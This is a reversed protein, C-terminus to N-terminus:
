FTKRLTAVIANETFDGTSGAGGTGGSENRKLFSYSLSGTLTDSFLYNLGITARYSQDSSGDGGSGYSESYSLTLFSSLLPSLQHGFTFFVSDEKRLGPGTVTGPNDDTITDQEIHAYSLNISDRTWTTGINALFRRTLTLNDTTPLGGIGRGTFSQGTLRDVFRGRPDIQTEGLANLYQDIALGVSESYSATFTTRATIDWRADGSFSVDQYRWGAQFRLRTRDSPTWVFGGLAYPGSVDRTLGADDIDDIGVTGLLGFDSNINYQSTADANLATLTGRDRKSETASGSLRWLFRTFDSGSSLLASASHSETDTARGATGTGGGGTSSSPTSTFSQSRTLRLESEAFGAYRHRWYPSISYVYIDQQNSGTNRDTASVQGGEDISTRAISGSADLFISDKIIEINGIAAAQQSLDDLETHDLHLEKTLSYNLNIRARRGTGSLVVGGTLRTILDSEKASGSSSNVNDTFTEQVEVFPDIQWEGARATPM